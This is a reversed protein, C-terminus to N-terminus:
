GGAHIIAINNEAIAELETKSFEKDTIVGTYDSLMNICTMARKYFKSSDAVLYAASSNQVILRKLAAKETTPTLM